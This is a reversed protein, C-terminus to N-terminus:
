PKGTGSSDARTGEGCVKALAYSLENVDFPKKLMARFGHAAFDGMVPDNSYGSSVIVQAEPQIQLVEAVAEGGGMGGPVTLDMIVADFPEAGDHADRYLDVMTRGEEATTVDYGLFSLMKETVRRVEPDDDMVLIRGTGRAPAPCEGTEEPEAGSPAAPLFVSFTTGVGLESDVSIFGQHNQVISYSTALGLGSGRTKTTFYPDFIKDLHQQPIGIGRDRVSVVVYDGPALPRTDPRKIHVNSARIEIVGGEPMAQDANIILNHLVQGIQGRDIEVLAVDPDLDLHCGVNSGRLSFGACEEILERASSTKKTPWDGRSLTLLQQTLDRAQRAATESRILLEAVKKDERMQVRALAINGLIATLFNNFDHAIGGALLGVSELKSARLREEERQREETIDRFVIVVGLVRGRRDKMPAMSNSIVHKGGDRGILDGSMTVTATDRSIQDSYGEAAQRDVVNFVLDLPKGEAEEQSWGTLEEAVRNMLIVKGQSSATIVGDGISRLTVSLREKEAALAEEARKRETINRVIVLTEEDSLALIRAEFHASEGAEQRSIELQTVGGATEVKRRADDLPEGWEGLDLDQFRRGRLTDESPFFDAVSAGAHVDVIVDEADVWLFLDPFARFVARMEGSARRLDELNSTLSRRLEERRDTAQRLDTDFRRYTQDVDALLRRMEPPLADSDGLHEDIQQKLLDHIADM